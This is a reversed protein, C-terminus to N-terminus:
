VLKGDEEKEGYRKMDNFCQKSNTNRDDDAPGGESGRNM